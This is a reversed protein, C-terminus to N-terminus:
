LFGYLFYLLEEGQGPQRGTGDNEIEAAPDAPMRDLQGPFTELYGSHISGLDIQIHGCRRGSRSIEYISSSFHDAIEHNM